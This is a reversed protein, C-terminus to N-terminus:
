ALVLLSHHRHRQARVGKVGHGGRGVLGHHGELLQRAELVVGCQWASVTSRGQREHLSVCTRRESGRPCTLFRRAPPLCLCGERREGARCAM